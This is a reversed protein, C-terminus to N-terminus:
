GFGGFHCNAFVVFRGYSPGSAFNAYTAYFLFSAGNLVVGSYLINELNLCFQRLCTLKVKERHPYSIISKHSTMDFGKHHGARNTVVQKTGPCALPCGLHKDFETHIINM